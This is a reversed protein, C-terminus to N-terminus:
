WPRIGPTPTGRSNIPRAEWERRLLAFLYESGWAGKFWANEIHHAEQRFGLRRFLSAAPHNEADTVATVRHKGLGDFVYELLSGLAETALGQRQHTPALTVGLEVQRPDDGRFHVGCDGILAASTKLVLALQLWTGPTDPAVGTQEAVLRVADALACSEWFQFRAVEPISRYAALPAADDFWLPRLVLRPSRLILPTVV